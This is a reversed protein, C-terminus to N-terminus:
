MALLTCFLFLIFFLLLPYSPFSIYSSSPLSFAVFSTLETCRKHITSICVGRATLTYTPLLFLILTLLSSSPPSIYPHPLASSHFLLSFILPERCCIARWPSQYVRTLTPTCHTDCVSDRFRPIGVPKRKIERGRQMRSRTGTCM